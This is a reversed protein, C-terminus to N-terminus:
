WEGDHDVQEDHADDRIHLDAVHRPMIYHVCQRRLLVDQLYKQNEAEHLAYLKAARMSRPSQSHRRPNVHVNIPPRSPQRLLRQNSTRHVIMDGSTSPRNNSGSAREERGNRGISRSGAGPGVTQPRRKQVFSGKQKTSKKLIYKFCQHLEDPAM